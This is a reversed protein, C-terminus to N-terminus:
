LIVQSCESTLQGHDICHFYVLEPMHSRSLLEGIQSRVFVISIKISFNPKNLLPSQTSFWSLSSSLLTLPLIPPYPLRNIIVYFMLFCILFHCASCHRLWDCGTAVMWDILEWIFDM